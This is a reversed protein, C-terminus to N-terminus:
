CLEDLGVDVIQDASGFIRFLHEILDDDIHVVLQRFRGFLYRNGDGVFFSEGFVDLLFGGVGRFPFTTRLHSDASSVLFESPFRQSSAFLM